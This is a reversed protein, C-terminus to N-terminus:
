KRLEPDRALLGLAVMSHTKGGGMAQRLEFVTQQTQGALRALGERLLGEMGKTVYNREFFSRSDRSEEEILMSLNEIQQPLQLSLTMEHLTCADQVRQLM